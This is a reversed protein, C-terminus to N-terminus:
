QLFRAAQLPQGSIERFLQLYIPLGPLSSSVFLRTAWGLGQAGIWEPRSLYRERMEDYLSIPGSLLIGGASPPELRGVNRKCVPM